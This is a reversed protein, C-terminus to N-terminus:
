KIEIFCVVILKYRFKNYRVARIAFKSSNKSKETRDIMKLSPPTVTNERNLVTDWIFALDQLPLQLNM